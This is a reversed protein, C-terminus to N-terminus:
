DNDNLFDDEENAVGLRLATMDYTVLEDDKWSAGDRPRSCTSSSGSKEDSESNEDSEAM